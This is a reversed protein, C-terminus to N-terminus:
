QGAETGPVARIESADRFCQPFWLDEDPTGDPAPSDDGLMAVRRDDVTVLWEDPSCQQEITGPLWPWTEREARLVALHEEASQGPQRDPAPSLPYRVLVESEDPHRGDNEHTMTSM